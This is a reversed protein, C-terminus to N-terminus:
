KRCREVRRKNSMELLDSIWKRLLARRHSHVNGVRQHLRRDPSPHLTDVPDDPIAEIRDTIRDSAVALQTPDVDAVLLNARERSSCLSLEGAPDRHAGSRGPRPVQVQEVPDIVRVPRSRRHERERRDDRAGLDATREKLLGIRM